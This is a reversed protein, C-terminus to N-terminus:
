SPCAATHPCQGRLVIRGAHTTISHRDDAITPVGVIPHRLRDAIQQQSPSGTWNLYCMEPTTITLPTRTFLGMRRLLASGALAPTPACERSSLADQEAPSLPDACNSLWRGESVERWLGWFVQALQVVAAPESDLLYL